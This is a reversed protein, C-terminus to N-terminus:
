VKKKQINKFTESLPYNFSESLRQEDAIIKELSFVTMINHETVIVLFGTEIGKEVARKWDSVTAIPIDNVSVIVAGAKLAQMQYAYSGPLIHTIIVVPNVRNEPQRFRILEPAEELLEIIHNETLEMVVLGAITDYPVDEHDFMKRRVAFPIVEQVICSLDFREGARYVVMTIENGITIRSILDFLSVKDHAWPVITEGYEDLTYGNLAYLMDGSKLGAHAGITNPFVQAVYLGGPVPDHLFQAKEDGSDVFRVGLYPKHVIKKIKLEPLICLLENIAIAYGVSQAGEIIALAIGIVHGQVNLVPGGSSGPNIPATIQLLTNHMIYERGSMIGISSKIHAQGLPYGLVLIGEASRVEDSNGLVLFPIQEVNDRLVHMDEESIKLLAIDRDPCIGVIFVKLKKRGLVPITIWIYKADEIVHANTVIHGDEDIIFGTAFSEYESEIKYPQCWDFQGVHACIQVIAHAYQAQITSWMLGEQVLYVDAKKTM